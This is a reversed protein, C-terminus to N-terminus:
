VQPIQLWCAAKNKLVEGESCPSCLLYEYKLPNHAPSSLYIYGKAHYRVYLLGEIFTIDKLKMSSSILNITRSGVQLELDSLEPFFLSSISTVYITPMLPFCQNVILPRKEELPAKAM